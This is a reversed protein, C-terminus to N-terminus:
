RRPVTPRPEDSIASAFWAAPLGVGFAHILLGNIVIPWVIPGGSRANSLPVVIYNMVVYAILGYTLGCLVVRERLLRRRRSAAVYIAVIITAILFHLVLGLAATPAGGARAAAPGLLGAAISHLIAVPSVGSRLYFFIVADALDLVGVTLGGYVIARAPTM